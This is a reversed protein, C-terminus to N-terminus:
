RTQLQDVPAYNDTLPRAGGVLHVIAARDFM